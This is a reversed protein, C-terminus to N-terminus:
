FPGEDEVEETEHTWDAAPEDWVVADQVMEKAFRERCERLPPFVYVWGNREILRRGNRHYIKFDKRKTELDSGVYRKLFMGIKVEIARRRAGQLNAHQVYRRFLTKKPCTNPEDIGWPLEGRKLVDFWWSQQPDASEIIQELLAGTRPIERLNVQSLDFKLLYYLLAERGGHNMEHDIAAFYDNDQMRGQGVDLIAFRREHFGAPVLWDQNGTVFLRIYNNVLIPDVGKFELRHRIGTVMDKLKGESRKDGAWFAEDAHLLVLQAMHSNFNGTIYRPDSVLEYHSGFLSGVVEGIKTKGVGQGGRLALSTGIKVHVQQVIQAFWGIVWKFIYEDGQAVNDKIHALFKSCDGERPEVAFGRWLNYYGERAKVPAFEIGQYQRRDKHSLWYDAVSMTRKGVAVLQNSYWQRMAGVQLLRFQERGEVKEFKMVAAKNGALVLAHNQNIKAVEADLGRKIEDRAQQIQRTVYARTSGSQSRCHEFIACRAYTEDLFANTIAKASVGSKLAIIITAFMLESRSGYKGHAVGRGGDPFHLLATVAQPLEDDGADPAAEDADGAARNRNASALADLEAVVEDVVADLNALELPAGPFANGTISIYRTAKRYTACEKIAIDVKQGKHIRHVHAGTGRGIIRISVGSPTIETYSRAREFVLKHVWPQLLRDAPNYCEDLDFAVIDSGMCCLGIGDFRERHQRFTQLAEAATAWTEPNDSAAKRFPDRASYPVKTKETKGEPIEYRWV